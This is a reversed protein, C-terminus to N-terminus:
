QKLIMKYDFKINVGVKVIKKNLLIYKLKGLSYYRADLVYQRHEDGIQFCVVSSTYPDLGAKPYDKFYFDPTTEVDVTVYKCKSLYAYAEDITSSQVQPITYPAILYISEM